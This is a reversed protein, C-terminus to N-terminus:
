SHKTTAKKTQSEKSSTAKKSSIRSKKKARSKCLFHNYNDIFQAVINDTYYAYVEDTDRTHPIGVYSLAQWTAHSAEHALAAIDEANNPRFRKLWVLLILQQTHQNTLTFVGGIDDAEFDDERLANPYHKNVVKMVHEPEGLTCVVQRHFVSDYIRVSFVKQM